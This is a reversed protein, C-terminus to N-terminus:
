LPAFFPARRRDKRSLRRALGPSRTRVTAFHDILANSIDFPRGPAGLGENGWDVTGKGIRSSRGDWIPFSPHPVM